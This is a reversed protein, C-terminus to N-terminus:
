AERVISFKVHNFTFGVGVLKITYTPNNACCTPVVLTTSFHLNRTDGIAVTQADIACPVAVGDKFMQVIVVGATTGVGYGDFNFTYLGTHRITASGSSHGISCGTDDCVSPFTLEGNTIVPQSNNNYMTLSSKTYNIM